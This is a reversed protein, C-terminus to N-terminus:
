QGLLLKVREAVIREKDDNTYRMICGDGMHELKAQSCYGGCIPFINCNRCATNGYVIEM